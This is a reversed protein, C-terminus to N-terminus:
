SKGKAVDSADVIHEPQNLQPQIGAPSIDKLRM